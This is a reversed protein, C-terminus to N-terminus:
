FACQKLASQLQPFDLMPCPGSSTLPDAKRQTSSADITLEEDNM